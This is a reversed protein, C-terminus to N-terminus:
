QEGRKRIATALNDAHVKWDAYPNPTEGGLVGLTDATVACAEREALAAAMIASRIERNMVEIVGPTAWLKAAAGPAMDALLFRLNEAVRIDEPKTM